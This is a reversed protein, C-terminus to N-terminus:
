PNTQAAAPCGNAKQWAAIETVPSRNEQRRWADLYPAPWIVGRRTWWDAVRACPPSIGFHLHCVTTNGTKGVTALRQGAAVRVGPNIGEDIIDLHAGYYRIADDGLLSISRGGRTAGDNVKPNYSDVRTVELVVGDTPAVFGLGCNAIIDSAPYDHHTSAYSAKGAVPFVYRAPATSPSPAPASVPASSPAPTPPQPATAGPTDGTNALVIITAALVIGFTTM